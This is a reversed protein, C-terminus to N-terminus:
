RSWRCRYLKIYPFIGSRGFPDSQLDSTKSKPPEFGGRGVLFLSVRCPTAKGAHIPTAHHFAANATTRALRARLATCFLLRVVKGRPSAKRLAERRRSVAFDVEERCPTAKGAHYPHCSSVGRLRYLVTNEYINFTSQRADSVSARKKNEDSERKKAPFRRAKAFDAPPM